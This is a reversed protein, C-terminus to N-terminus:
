GRWCASTRSSARAPSRDARLQGPANGGLWRGVKAIAENGGTHDADVSSNVLIRIPKDTVQRIAALVEDSTGRAGTDVLLVGEDGIQM